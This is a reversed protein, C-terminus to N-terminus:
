KEKNQTFKSGPRIRIEKNQTFREPTEYFLRRWQINVTFDSVPQSNVNMLPCLSDTYGDPSELESGVGELFNALYM